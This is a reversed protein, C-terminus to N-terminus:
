LNGKLGTRSLYVTFWFILDTKDGKINYNNNRKRVYRGVNILIILYVYYYLNIFNFFNNNYCSGFSNM